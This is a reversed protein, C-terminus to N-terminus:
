RRYPHRSDLGVAILSVITMVFMLWFVGNM